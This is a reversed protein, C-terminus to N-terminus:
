NKETQISIKMFGAGKLTDVVTVFPQLTLEKDASIIVQLEPDYDLLKASLDSLSILEEKFCISGESTMDVTIVEKVTDAAASESKPLNVPILGRVMFNSTILVIVILVLMIDVLPVINIGSFISEDEM